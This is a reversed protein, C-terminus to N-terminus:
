QPFTTNLWWFGLYKLSPKHTNTFFIEEEESQSIILIMKRCKRGHEVSKGQNM